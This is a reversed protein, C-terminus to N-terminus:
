GGCRDVPGGGADIFLRRVEEQKGSEFKHNGLVAIIPIKLGNLEKALIAAEEPLGYDVLDVCLLLVDVSQAIQSFLTQVLGHSNRGCHVDGVAAIRVM